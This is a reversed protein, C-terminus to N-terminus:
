EEKSIIINIQNIGEKKVRKDYYSYKVSKVEGSENEFVTLYEVYYEPRTNRIIDFVEAFWEETSRKFDKEYGSSTLSDLFSNQQLTNNLNFMLDSILHDYYLQNQDM